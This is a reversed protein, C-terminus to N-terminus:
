LDKKIQEFQEKTIEGKAYRQQAIALADSKSNNISRHRSAYTAIFVVIGIVLLGWLLMMLLGWGYDNGDMMNRYGDYSQALYQLHM